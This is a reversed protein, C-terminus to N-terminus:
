RGSGVMKLRKRRHEHLAAEIDGTASGRFVLVGKKSVIEGAPRLPQLSISQGDKEVELVAGPELGLDDRIGKPIIIRGFKDLTTEM